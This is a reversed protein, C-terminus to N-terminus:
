RTPLTTTFQPAIGWNAEAKNINEHANQRFETLGGKSLLYLKGDVITWIELDAIVKVGRTLAMSCYSGLRPAYREANSAFM